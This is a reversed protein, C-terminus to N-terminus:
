SPKCSPGRAQPKCSPRQSTNAAQDEPKHKCSPGRAQPKRSPRQSTTQLKTEPKHNAAQDRASSAISNITEGIRKLGYPPKDHQRSCRNPTPNQRQNRPPEPKGTHEFAQCPSGLRQEKTKQRGSSHKSSQTKKSGFLKPASGRRVSDKGQTQSFGQRSQTRRRGACRSGRTTRVSEQRAAREARPEGAWRLFGPAARTAGRKEM